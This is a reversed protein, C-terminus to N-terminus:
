NRLQTPGLPNFCLSPHSPFSERASFLCRSDFFTSRPAFAGVLNYYILRVRSPNRLDKGRPIKGIRRQCSSSMGWMKFTILFFSSRSVKGKGTAVCNDPRFTCFTQQLSLLQTARDIQSRRDFVVESFVKVTVGIGRPNVCGRRLNNLTTNRDKQERCRQSFLSFATILFLVNRNRSSILIM